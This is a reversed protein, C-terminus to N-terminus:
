TTYEGEHSNTNLEIGCIIGRLIDMGSNSGIKTLRYASVLSNKQDSFFLNRMLEVIPKFFRGKCAEYIMMESIFTTKNKYLLLIQEVFDNMNISLTFKSKKLYHYSSIFGVIFDDGSPTLGPGFGILHAIADIVKSLSNEKVAYRLSAIRNQFLIKFECSFSLIREEDFLVKRIFEANKWLNSISSKHSESWEEPDWVYSRSFPILLSLSPIELRDDNLYIKDGLEIQHLRYYFWDNQYIQVARSHIPKTELILSLLFNDKLTVNICSNFISHFQGSCRKLSYLSETLTKSVQIPIIFYM